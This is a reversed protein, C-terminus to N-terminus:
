EFTVSVANSLNSGLGASDRFWAQFSWTDGPQVAVPGGAQPLQQLPVDLSVAGAAGSSQIQGPGAFLGPIGGLCLNGNSTGGFGPVFGEANSVLFVSFAGPPLDFAELEISGAAVLRSGSARIEAPVGFSHSAAECYNVGVSTGPTFGFAESATWGALWTNTADPRFAGRYPARSFFGDIPTPRGALLAEAVPRPDLGVVPVQLLGGVAHVSASRTVGVIPSGAPSAGAIVVNDNAPDLVGRAIAETYANSSLNRYFISGTIEALQGDVQARYFAGQGAPANPLPLASAATSWVEGWTLGPVPPSASPDGYGATPSTGPDLRVIREGGDMFISNRFQARAGDRWAILGDGSLPQGIVTLNYLAATTIPQWSSSEAGDLEIANDGVGSGQGADLSYGQVILGFQAKGRWGQDVDLSDDGVNWISFYKLNVTGGWVEIGDDLNNMIEVHHIDTGRGVGGLSLGNQENGLGTLSGGYRLSVYRLVGSDDDDNGGGYQGLTSGTPPSLGEMEAYNSSSPVATNTPIEDESVYAAGMLILSGWEAASARWEGTQPDGATWTAADQPSTFIIPAGAEGLAFIQAGRAVGLAGGVPSSIVTGGEITLTAGPLVYIEGQLRYTNGATWTTSVAINSTVDIDAAFASPVPVSVLIAAALRYTM